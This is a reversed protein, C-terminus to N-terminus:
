LSKEMVSALRAGRPLQVQPFDAECNKKDKQCREL